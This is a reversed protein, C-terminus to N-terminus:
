ASEPRPADIGLGALQKLYGELLEREHSRRDEVTLTSAIHYGVDLYWPGRQVLQWDVLCPRQASDLFLNGVHTDGHILSWPASTKEARAADVLRRYAAVLRQPDRVAGPLHRGNDGELNGAIVRLTEAEGWHTLVTGLRPRLWNQDAFRSDMWTRAHLRALQALSAATQEPAYTSTADLFRGGRAIVDESLVVGHRTDPDVDAYLATLTRVGTSAAVDRYFLAEPEGVFRITSGFPNFYGKICLHPFFGAPASGACEITFRANTTIRDVVPGTLVRDVRLGPFPEQLASSLWEASLATDLSDPVATM